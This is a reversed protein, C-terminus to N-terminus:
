KQCMHRFGRLIVNLGQTRFTMMYLQFYKSDSESNLIHEELIIFVISGQIISSVDARRADLPYLNIWPGCETDDGFPEKIKKPYQKV